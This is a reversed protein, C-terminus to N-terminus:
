GNITLTSTSINFAVEPYMTYQHDGAGGGQIKLIYPQCETIGMGCSATNHMYGKLYIYHSTGVSADLLIDQTDRGVLYFLCGGNIDVTAGNLISLFQDHSLTNWTTSGSTFDLTPLDSGPALSVKATSTQIDSFDNIPRLNAVKTSGDGIYLLKQDMDWLPQGAELTLTDSQRGISEATGRLFKIAM